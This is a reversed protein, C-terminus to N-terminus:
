KIEGRERKFKGMITSSYKWMKMQILTTQSKKRRHRHPNKWLWVTETPIELQVCDIRQDYIRKKTNKKPSFVM